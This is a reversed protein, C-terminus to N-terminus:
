RLNRVHTSKIDCFNLVKMKGAAALIREQFISSLVYWIYNIYFVFVENRYGM